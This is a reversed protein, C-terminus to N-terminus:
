PVTKTFVIATKDGYVQRWRTSQKLAGALASEAQILITDVHFRALHEEWGDKVNLIDLYDEVFAPGYYDSRGDIYVRIAPYLRYVLYGGWLDPAFVSRAYEPGRIVEVAKTPFSRPDYEARWKPPPQPAGLVMAAIAIAVASFVHFREVRDTEAFSAAGAHFAMATRKFFRRVPLERLSKLLDCVGAALIPATVMAFITIHRGSRLALHCWGAYLLIDVVRGAQLSRFAAVAGAMIMGELLLAGFDRFEISRFEGIYQTYFPDTLYDFIHLHLQYGYPNLLSALLCGGFAFIYPRAAGLAAKFTKQSLSKLVEGAAYAGVMLFMAAFGGHFNVWLATLPLLLWLVGTRGAAARELICYSLLFFLLSLLHPRALWHVASVAMALFTIAFAVFDNDSRSRVLRYLVASILCLVVVNVLVVGPMGWHQHIWAFVVDWLWEWAFWPEGPKTYSFIDRAPIRHNQLIWEGTRLHWGTDGDALMGHAGKSLFFLIGMPFLFAFDTLSPLFRLALPPKEPKIQTM